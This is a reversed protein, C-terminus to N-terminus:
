SKADSYGAAAMMSAFGARFSHSLFKRKDYNIHQGLLGKLETNFTSGTMCKGNGLRFVPKTSIIRCTSAKRWKTWAAVPCSFTGTAFLEVNVGLKQRDEKPNKLHVALIEESQGDVKAQVLRIDAGLLTTTHDFYPEERSLLEHIRFSGHFAICSIAWLLRKKELTMNTLTLLKKLLKMVPITMALRPNKTKPEQNQHGKLIAQVLNPRLNNPLVGNKLNVVRLGSLYQSISSSSIKRVTMLWGVFALIMRLLTILSM